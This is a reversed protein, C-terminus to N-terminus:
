YLKSPRYKQIKVQKKIFTLVFYILTLKFLLWSNAEELWHSRSSHWDQFHAVPPTPQTLHFSLFNFPCTKIMPIRKPINLPVLCFCSLSIVCKLSPKVSYNKEVNLYFWKFNHQGNLGCFIHSSQSTNKHAHFLCQKRLARGEPCFSAYQETFRNRELANKNSNM